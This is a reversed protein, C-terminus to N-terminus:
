TSECPDYCIRKNVPWQVTSILWRIKSQFKEARMEYATFMCCMTLTHDASLSPSLSFSSSFYDSLYQYILIQVIEKPTRWLPSNKSCEITIKKSLKIKNFFSKKFFSLIRCCDLLPVFFHRAIRVLILITMVHVYQSHCLSVCM